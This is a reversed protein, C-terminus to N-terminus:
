KGAGIASLGGARQLLSHSQSAAAGTLGGDGVAHAGLLM